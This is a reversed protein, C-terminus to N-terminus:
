KKIPTRGQLHLNKKWPKGLSAWPGMEVGQALSVAALGTCSGVARGQRALGQLDSEGPAMDWGLRPRYGDGHVYSIGPAPAAGTAEM